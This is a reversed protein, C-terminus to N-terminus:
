CSSSPCHRSVECLLQRAHIAYTVILFIRADADQLLQTLKTILVSHIYSVFIDGELGAIGISSEFARETFSINSNKLMVKLRETVKLLFLLSNRLNDNVTVNFLIQGCFSKNYKVSTCM